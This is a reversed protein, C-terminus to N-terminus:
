NKKRFRRHMKRMYVPRPHLLYCDLVCKVRALCERAFMRAALRGRVDKAAFGIVNLGQRHGTFIARELHYRQSVVIITRIGFSGKCRWLSDWTRYGAHDTLIADAPISHAVLARKMETAEAPSEKSKRSGSVILTQCKKEKFLQIAAEIRYQFYRNVDGGRSFKATGLVLATKRFPIERSGAYIYPSAYRTIGLYCGAIILLLLIVPIVLFM